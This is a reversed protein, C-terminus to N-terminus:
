FQNIICNLSQDYRASVDQLNCNKDGVIVVHEESTGQLASCFLSIISAMLIYLSAWLIVPYHILLLQLIYNHNEEADIVSCM